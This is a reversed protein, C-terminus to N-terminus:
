KYRIEIRIDQSYNGFNKGFLNMGGPFECDKDVGITFSFSSDERLGLSELNERSISKGNLMTKKDTVSLSVLEGFQSNSDSWWLPNNIGRRGGYDGKVHFTTIYKDNIKIFIDSPWTNNYGPAEACVEFSINLSEVHSDKLLRNSIRYKLYGTTFWLLQAQLHDPHWFGYAADEKEVYDKSGAIGCPPDVQAECYGGIPLNIIKPAKHSGSGNIDFFEFSIKDAKIGCLKQAGHMGPKPTITILNAERLIATHMSISSMSVFLEQSLESMTMSSQILLKLIELRVPSSLAKAVKSTQEINSLNYNYSEKGFSM